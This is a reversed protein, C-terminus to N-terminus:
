WVRVILNAFQVKGNTRLVEVRKLDSFLEVGQPVKKQAEIFDNSNFELMFGFDVREPLNFGKKLNQYDINYSNNLEKIKNESLLELNNYSTIKYKDEELQGGGGTLTGQPFDYSFKFIAFGKTPDNDHVLSTDFETNDSNGDRRSPVIAGHRNEVVANKSNDVGAIKIKRIIGGGSVDMTISFTELNVTANNIIERIAYDLSSDILRSSQQFPNFFYLAFIVFGAFILFSLMVEIHSIGRKNM